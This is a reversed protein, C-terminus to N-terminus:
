HEVQTLVKLSNRGIEIGVAGDEDTRYVKSGAAELRSIVANSPHGYTNKGVSIVSLKPKVQDLFEECTSYKSGHHAVKLVDAKLKGTGMYKKVLEKECQQEIDGTVLIRVGNLQVMFM